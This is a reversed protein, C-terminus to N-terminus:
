RVDTARLDAQAIRIQHVTDFGVHGATAICEFLIASPNATYNIGVPSAVDNLPMMAHDRGKLYKM